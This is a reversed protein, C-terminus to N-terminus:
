IDGTLELLRVFAAAVEARTICALPRFNYDSDAEMFDLDVALLVRSYFADGVDAEDNLMITRGPRLATENVGKKVAFLKILIAATEQRKINKLVANPNIITDLGLKVSKQKIDLGTNANARGTVKEYLLIIEKGSVQNEPAFANNIGIFVDSLDYRSTLKVIYDRAWHNDPVDSISSRAALMIVYKGTKLVNFTLSSPAQVVNAALKQWTNSGDYLVYPTKVGQRTSFSLRASVPTGFQTIIQASTKLTVSELISDIYESLEEEIMEILKATYENMTDSADTGNGIYTNLLLNLKTSVLGDEENYLKDYFLSKLEADTKSAGVAQIELDNVASIRDGSSSLSVPVTDTRSITLQLYLDKVASRQVLDSIQENEDADLSQPRLVYEAGNTKIVLSKNKVNMAKVISLPIFVVDKDMNLSIDSMDLAFYDESSNNIANVVMESKLLIQVADSNDIDVRWYYGKELQKMKELFTAKNENERDTNDYDDQNFETRSDVPGVYKSYSVLAVDAADIRVARVKIYYKVNSKLQQRTKLGGPLTVMVSKIRANYFMYDNGSTQTTEETYYSLLDGSNDTYQELDSVTLTTYESADETRIAIEYNSYDDVPLGKWRVELEHYGDRTEMGKKEYVLINNDVGKFVRIDYCSNVKLNTIRGYYTRGDRDKVITSASRTVLKYASDGPGKIFIRYDEATMGITSDVWFFGLQADNVAVLQVPAEILSTTIPISTWASEAISINGSDLRVAKLSFYYLKNPFLRMDVTYTCMRTTSDYSFKGEPGATPDADPDPNLYVKENALGDSPLDYADLFSLYEADFEYTSLQDTPNVRGATRVLEYVVDFEKREWTFTVSNGSLLQNGGSDSAIAFDVPTLPKRDNDDPPNIDIVITTVPLIATSMSEKETFESPDTKREIVLRTKVKFYYTTNPLLRTGFRSVVQNSNDTFQSIRAKVSTSAPDDVGTFILDVDQEETTGILTFETDTRSNMYIDYYTYYNYDTTNYNSTYNRWDLNTVKDFVVDIYNVPPSIETNKSNAELGLNGPLPVDQEVGNLTTFSIVLSQDSMKVPDSTGADSAKTTYMKFYYVTNPALFAPYDDPNGDSNNLNINDIEEDLNDWKEAMFLDFADITLSLRSGDDIISESRGDVYKVLRYEPIYSDWYTGNVYFPVKDTLDTQSTSLMFHFVLDDYETDWNAPKDWSITVDTSKVNVNALDPNVVTGPHLERNTVVINLPVPPKSTDISLMYPMKLSELKDNPSDSKVVIKYYINNNPNVGSIATVAFDGNFYTDDMTKKVTWDGPVSPDDSAQIQYYLRPLDLSGQNIKYIKIYINNANDKSLQFRVPTSAYSVTGTLLSGNQDEPNGSTVANVPNNDSDAFVPKINMYYVSGPLIDMDPLLYDNADVDPIETVTDDKRGVLSFSYYGNTDIGYVASTVDPTPDSTSVNALLVGGNDNIIIAAQSSGGNLRTLDSSINVRYNLFDIERGDNYINNLQTEMYTLNASTYILEATDSDGDMDGADPVHTAFVFKIGNYVKPEIWRLKLEPKDGSERGGGTIDTYAPDPAVAGAFFTIRPLYYLLGEGLLEGEGDIQSYLELRIDYIYDTKLGSISAENTTQNLELVTEVANDTDDPLHYTIVASQVESIADWHIDLTGSAYEDVHINVPITAANVTLGAFLGYTLLIALVASLTRKLRIM